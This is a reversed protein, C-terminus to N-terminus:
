KPVQQAFSNDYLAKSDVQDTAKLNPCLTPNAKCDEINLKLVNDVGKQDIIGEASLYQKGAELAKIYLDRDAGTVADPLRAAIDKSSNAAIFRDARVLANVVRQVVGPNKQIYDLTTVAGTFQYAGGLLATTDKETRYDGGAIIFGKGANVYSTIFPDSNMCAAAGKSDLAAAMTGSGCPKFTYDKDQVLGARNMVFTLLLHTGSGVSTAGVTMGKLDKVSKVTDKLDNRVILATGPLRAFSVVMKTPKGAIQAKISHDLSNGTFDVTGSLLATAAETGAQAYNLQIDLNEDEFYNLARALDWPLYILSAASGVSVKVTARAPKTAQAQTASTTSSAAPTVKGPGGCASALLLAAGIALIAHTRNM